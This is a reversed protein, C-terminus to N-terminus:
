TRRNDRWFRKADILVEYTEAAGELISKRGRKHESADTIGFKALLAVGTTQDNLDGLFGQLIKLAALFAKHRRTAKKGPFLLGFFDASYRLKKVKIRLRHRGKDDLRAWHRGRRKVGRRCRDLVDAAFADLPREIIMRDVPATLWKGITIWEVLDLMLIRLRPSTLAGTADAYAQAKAVQLKEQVREDHRGALLVDIDRAMDLESAIWHLESQIHDFRDDALMDRFISLASRLRRLGVRAQHLAEPNKARLLISQNLRFQHLCAYAIAQFGKSSNIGSTLSIAQSNVPRDNDRALLDYGRQAKSLTSLQLPAFGGLTRALGFLAEPSGAKLELEVESIPTIAGGAQIEGTDFVLEIRAGDQMITRIQRTVVIRFIASLRELQAAPVLTRLPMHHDDIVPQDQKIAVEWEPRAFLGATAKSEAKVTQIRKTGIKRIRLSLGAKRIDQEPTDFYTSTQEREEVDVMALISAHALVDIGALDTELKLEVERNEMMNWSRTFTARGADM